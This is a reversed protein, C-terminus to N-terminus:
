QWYQGTYGDDSGQTCQPDNACNHTMYALGIIVVIIGVLFFIKKKLLLREEDFMSFIGGRYHLFLLGLILSFIVLLVPSTSPWLNAFWHEGRTYGIIKCLYAGSEFLLGIAALVFFGLFTAALGTGVGHLTSDRIEVLKLGDIFNLLKKM